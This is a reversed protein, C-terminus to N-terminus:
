NVATVSTVIRNIVDRESEDLSNGSYVFLLIDEQNALWWQHYNMGNETYDYQYGNYDGWKQWNLSISSDVNTMNRLIEQTVVKPATNMLMFKLTGAGDPRHITTIVRQNSKAETNHVWEGPIAINYSGLSIINEGASGFNEPATQAYNSQSVLTLAIYLILKM